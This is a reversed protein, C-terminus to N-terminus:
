TLYQGVVRVLTGAFYHLFQFKEDRYENRRRLLAARHAAPLDRAKEEDLDRLLLSVCELILQPMTNVWSVDHGGADIVNKVYIYCM